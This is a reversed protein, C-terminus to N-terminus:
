EEVIRLWLLNFILHYPLSPISHPNPAINTAILYDSLRRSKEQRVETSTRCTSSSQRTRDFVQHDEFFKTRRM